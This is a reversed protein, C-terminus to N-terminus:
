VSSASARLAFADALTQGTFQLHHVFDVAVAHATHPAPHGPRKSPRALWSAAIFQALLRSSASM